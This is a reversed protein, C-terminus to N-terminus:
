RREDLVDGLNGVRVIGLPHDELDLLEVVQREDDVGAVVAIRLLRQRPAVERVREVPWHPSIAEGNQSASTASFGSSAVWGTPEPGNM